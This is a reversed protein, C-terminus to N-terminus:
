SHRDVIMGARKLAEIIRAALSTGCCHEADYEADRNVESIVAIAKAEIKESARLVEGADLEAEALEWDYYPGAEFGMAAYEKEAMESVEKSVTKDPDDPAYKKELNELEGMTEEATARNLYVRVPKTGRDSYEGWGMIIVYAKTM